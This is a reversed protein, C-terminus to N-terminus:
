GDRREIAGPDNSEPTEEKMAEIAARGLEHALHTGIYFEEKGLRSAIAMGVKEIMTM